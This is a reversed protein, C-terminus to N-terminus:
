GAGGGRGEGAQETEKEVFLYFNLGVTEGCHIKLTQFDVKEDGEKSCFTLPFLPPSLGLLVNVPSWWCSFRSLKQNTTAALRM